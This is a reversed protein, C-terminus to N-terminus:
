RATQHKRVEGTGAAFGHTRSREFRMSSPKGINCNLKMERRGRRAINAWWGAEQFLPGTGERCHGMRERQWGHLRCNRVSKAWCRRLRNPFSNPSPCVSRPTRPACFQETERVDPRTGALDLYDTPVDPMPQSLLSGPREVARSEPGALGVVSKRPQFESASPRSRPPPTM